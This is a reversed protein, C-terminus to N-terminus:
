KLYFVLIVLLPILRSIPMSYPPMPRIITVSGLPNINAIRFFAIRVNNTLAADNVNKTAVDLTEDADFTTVPEFILAWIQGSPLGHGAVGTPAM